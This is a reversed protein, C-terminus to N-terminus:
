FEHRFDMMYQYDKTILSSNPKPFRIGSVAWMYYNVVEIMAMTTTMVILM